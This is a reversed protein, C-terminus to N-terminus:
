GGNEAQFALALARASVDILLPGLLEQLDHEIFSPQGLRRLVPLPASPEQVAFSITSIDAGMRWFDEIQAALDPVYEGEHEEGGTVIESSANNQRSARLAAIVATQSRGRLNFLRFPDEDFQLAYAYNVAIIHKCIDAWDPCSCHPQLAAADPPFLVAGAAAFVEEIELPLEGVLLQATYLARSAIQTFVANWQEDNLEPWSMRVTYEQRGHDAVIATVNGNAARLDRVNGAAAAQRGRRLRGADSWQAVRAL